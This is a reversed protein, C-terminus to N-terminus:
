DIVKNKVASENDKLQLEPNFSSLIKVNYSSAYGNFIHARKTLKVNIKTGFIKHKKNWRPIKVIKSLVQREAQRISKSLKVPSKVSSPIYTSHGPSM